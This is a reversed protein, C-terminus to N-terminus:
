IQSERDKKFERRIIREEYKELSKKLAKTLGIDFHNAILISSFYVDLRM